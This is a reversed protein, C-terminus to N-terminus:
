GGRQRREFDALQSNLIRIAEPGIFVTGVSFLVGCEEESQGTLSCRHPAGHELDLVTTKRRTAPKGSERSKPKTAQETTTTTNTDEVM